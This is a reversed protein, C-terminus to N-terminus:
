TDHLTKPLHQFTKKKLFTKHRSLILQEWVSCHLFALSPPLCVCLMDGKKSVTKGNTLCRRVQLLKDNAIVILTDVKEKLIEIGQNAQELPM